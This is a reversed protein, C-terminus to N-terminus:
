PSLWIARPPIHTAGTKPVIIKPPKASINKTIEARKLFFSWVVDQCTGKWINKHKFIKIFFRNILIQCPSTLRFLARLAIVIIDIKTGITPM